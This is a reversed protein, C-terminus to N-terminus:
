QVPAYVHIAGDGGDATGVPLFVHGDAESSTVSHPTGGTIAIKQVLKNTTADIVGLVPGGPNGSAAIYYQNNRANYNVMDAGGIDPINAVVSGTQASMITITAPMKKGNAACGLVFNGSPSFALGAPHCNDVPLINVLKGSRPDIVAVGGKKVDKNLEPISVYFMGDAPNYAPQEAGDTADAFVIKAIIKHQAATSVLTAYPPDEANNVGIFVADKPDFAMEDVRTSGGTNITDIVNHTAVDIVKVSSDGDGVWVENGIAVVGDPGSADNNPKGDKLIIGAFSGVRTVFTNTRADFIDVAKNSRDSFFYRGTAQDVFSIDFGTLKEGPIAISAIQKLEAAGATGCAILTAAAFIARSMPAVM